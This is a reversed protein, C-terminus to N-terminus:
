EASLQFNKDKRSFTSDGFVMLFRFNLWRSLTIVLGVYQVIDWTSIGSFFYWLNKCWTTNKGCCHANMIQDRAVIPGGIKQAFKTRYRGFKSILPKKQPTSEKVLGDSPPNGVPHPYTAIFNARFKFNSSTSLNISLGTYVEKFSLRNYNKNITSVVM